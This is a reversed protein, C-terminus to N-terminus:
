VPRVLDPCFGFCSNEGSKRWFLKFWPGAPKLWAQSPTVSKGTVGWCSWPRLEAGFGPKACRKSIVTGLCWDGPGLAQLSIGNKEGFLVGWFCRTEQGLAPPEPTYSSNKQSSSAWLLLGMFTRTGWLLVSLTLPAGPCNPFQQCRPPGPPLHRPATDTPLPIFGM